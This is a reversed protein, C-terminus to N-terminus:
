VHARGIEDSTLYWSRWDNAWHKSHTGFFLTARGERVLLETPGQGITKGERPFGVDFSTLPSWTRGEDRSRTVATYNLPSPETDGGALMFYIWSGDPLRRLTTDCVMRDPSRGEYPISRRDEKADAAAQAAWRDHPVDAAVLRLCTLLALTARNM